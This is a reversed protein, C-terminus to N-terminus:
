TARSCSSRAGHRVAGASAVADAAHLPQEVLVPERYDGSEVYRLFEPQRVLNVIPQRRDTALNLGLQAEARVNAWDIRNDADLLVVGDPLAEAAKRFRQIVHRCTASCRKACARAATCLPSSRPGAGAARRCARM